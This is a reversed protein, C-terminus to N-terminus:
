PSPRVAIRNRMFAHKVRSLADVLADAYFVRRSYPLSIDIEQGVILHHIFPLLFSHGSISSSPRCQRDTM